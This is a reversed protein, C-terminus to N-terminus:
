LAFRVFFAIAMAIAAAVLLGNSVESQRPEAPHIM